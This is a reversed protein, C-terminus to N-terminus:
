VHARNWAETATYECGLMVDYLNYRDCIDETTAHQWRNYDLLWKTEKVAYTEDLGLQLLRAYIKDRLESKPEEFNFVENYEPITADPYLKTLLALFKRARTWDPKDRLPAKNLARIMENITKDTLQEPKPLSKPEIKHNAFAVCIAMTQKNTM